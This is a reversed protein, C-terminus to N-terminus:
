VVMSTQLFCFCLQRLCPEGWGQIIMQYSGPQGPQRWCVTRPKCWGCRGTAAFGTSRTPALVIHLTQVLWVAWNARVRNAQNAGVGSAGVVSHGTPVSGTPMTPAFRTQVLRLCGTPTFRTSGTPVS